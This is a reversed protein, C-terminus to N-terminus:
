AKANEKKGDKSGLAAREQERVQREEYVREKERGARDLAEIYTRFKVVERLLYASKKEWNAMVKNWNQGYRNTYALNVANRLENHRELETEVSAVYAKLSRLQDIELLQSPLMSAAPPKWDAIHARDGPLRSRSGFTQDFSGRVSSQMSQKGLSNVSASHGHNGAARSPPKTLPEGNSNGILAPNIINDSWGYEINDVGGVLPEKSLRASWYNVTSVFEEAIEATGVHFLHVAGTPLSLAWVHPRTKSYGPHPLVTALSQRLLFQDTEDANDTWNGGGVVSPAVSAAKGTKVPQRKASRMDNIKTTTRNFNFLHLYGKEVVAFTESWSREKAKKEPGDLHHKHKVMGEKAWPAGALELSEDELVTGIKMVSETDGASEERIIAQSLANTFGLSQKFDPHVAFSEVSMTTQTRGMSIKSWMSSQASPSWASQGDDISTRTSGVTSAPYVKQRSRNKTANWHSSLAGSNQRKSRYSFGESPAKSIVSGTRRLNGAVTLNGPGHSTGPNERSNQSGHLPLALSVISSYFAKLVSEVELLWKHEPGDFPRSVLHNASGFDGHEGPGPDTEYRGMGPRFSLRKTSRRFDVSGRDDDDPSKPTTDSWPLSPRSPSRTPRITASEAAAKVAPMTNKIFESRTMKHQIDAMHQDTNLLLLAYCIAHVVGPGKFGNLTNCEDWRRSFADLIRDVQQSEGKLILRDCLARLGSLINRNAFDFLDMYATLTRASVPNKEGLWAAAEDKLMHQEEGQYIQRAREREDATPEDITGLMGRAVEVSPRITHGDVQFSPLDSDDNSVVYSQPARIGEIPLGLSDRNHDFFHSRPSIPEREMDSTPSTVFRESPTIMPSNAMPSVPSFAGAAGLYTDSVASIISPARSGDDADSNDALFSNSQVLDPRAHGTAVQLRENVGGFNREMDDIKPSKFAQQQVHPTVSKTSGARPELPEVGVRRISADPPPTYGSHFMDLESSEDTDHSLVSSRTLQSVPTDVPKNYDSDTKNLQSASGGLYQDMVMRLSSAGPSVPPSHDKLHSASVLPNPLPLPPPIETISKKRRRFFSAKKTVVNQPPDTSNSNTKTPVSSSASETSQVSGDRLNPRQQDPFSNTRTASGFVRRFFGPREKPADHASPQKSLSSNISASSNTPPHDLMSPSQARMNSQRVFELAQDRISQPIDSNNTSAQEKATNSKSPGGPVRPEPCHVEYTSFMSPIPRGRDLIGNSVVEPTGQTRPDGKDFTGIRTTGLVQGYGYDVSQVTSPRSDSNSNTRIRATLQSDNSNADSDHSLSSSYTHGRVRQQLRQFARPPTFSTSSRDFDDSNIDPMNLPSFGPGAASGPMRDFSSLLNDLVSDQTVSQWSEPRLQSPQSPPSSRLPSSSAHHHHSLSQGPPTAPLPADLRHLPVSAPVSLSPPVSRQPHPHLHPHPQSRPDAARPRRSTSM